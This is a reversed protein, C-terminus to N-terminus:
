PFNNFIEYCKKGILEEPSKGTQKITSKNVALINLDRDLVMAMHGIADFIDKWEQRAKQASQEAEKRKEIELTMDMNKRILEATREKVKDELEDKAKKLGDELKKRDTIDRIVGVTGLFVKNENKVRDSYFGSSNVEVVIFDDGINELVGIFDSRGIKPMLRIELGTTKRKGTRREDFLGIPKGSEKRLKMAEKRSIVPVDVPLIISSFHIGILEKPNYGLKEIADNIFTFNGEPDIRYVIDPVTNVLTEFRLESAKLDDYQKRLLRESKQLQRNQRDLRLFVNVKSLLIRANFPKVLFDVAGSDYGKFVHYESSYVASVFIIPLSRTKKESRIFEALEYGDMEPMQVDLVALAFDHNLIAILAENGSSASIVEANIESLIQRLSFINEPRDDVILIKSRENM